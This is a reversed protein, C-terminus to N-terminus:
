MGTYKVDIFTYAGMYSVEEVILKRPVPNYGATAGHKRWLDSIPVTDPIVIKSGEVICPYETAISDELDACSESGLKFIFLRDKLPSCYM